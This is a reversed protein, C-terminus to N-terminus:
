QPVRIEEQINIKKAQKGILNGILFSIFILFIFILLFELFPVRYNIYNFHELESPFPFFHYKNQIKIFITSLLFGSISSLFFIYFCFLNFIVKIDKAFLGFVKLLAWSTKYHFFLLKLSFYLQFISVFLILFVGLVMSTKEIKLAYLIPAKKIYITEIKLNEPLINKILQSIKNINKTEKLFIQYESIINEKKLTNQLKKLPVETEAGESEKLLCIKKLIPGFPSLTLEPITFCYTKGVEGLPIKIKETKDTGKINTKFDNYFGDIKLIKNIEMDENINKLNKEFQIDEKFTKGEEPEIFIHAENKLYNEKIKEQASDMFSIILGLSFIGLFIGLFSLLLFFSHFSKKKLSFLLKLSLYLNM